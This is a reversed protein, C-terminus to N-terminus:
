QVTDAVPTWGTPYGNNGASWSVGSRYHFERTGTENKGAETVWNATYSGSGASTSYCKIYNLKWCTNFMYQYCKSQLTPALLDPARTLKKCKQFMGRYCSAALHTSPLFDAPVTELKACTSFMDNFCGLKLVTDSNFLQRDALSTLENCEFFMQYCLGDQQGNEASTGAALEYTENPDHPFVPISALNSCQYFMKYYAKYRLTGAPLSPPPTTMLSCGYFMESCGSEEVVSLSNSFSPASTLSSCGSFMRCCAYSAITTIPLTSPPTTLSTCGEFMSRYCSAASSTAPLVPSKTLGTCGKFMGEYCSTDLTEASLFLDKDLPIDINACDKFAQKFANEGVTSHRVWNADSILSMIDGYVYVPNTVTILPTSGGSNTYATRQGRFSVKEGPSLSIASSYPLWESWVSGIYTRYEIAGNTTYNFTVSAGIDRAEVTFEEVASRLVRYYHNASLDLDSAFNPECHIGGNNNIWMQAGQLATGAPVPSTFEIKSITSNGGVPVGTVSRLVYNGDSSRIDVQVTPSAGSLDLSSRYLELDFNLFVTQQTLTIQRENYTFDATFHSYKQVLDALSSTYAISPPYTPGASIEHDTITFFSGNPSVQSAGVLTASLETAATPTYGSAISINGNFIASGTGAGSELTLEGSIQSADGGTIYLMDGTAFVYNGSDLGSGDLSARTEPATQVTVTFPLSGTTETEPIIPLEKTCGILLAPLSLLLLIYRSIRM